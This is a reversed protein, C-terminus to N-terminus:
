RKALRALQRRLRAEVSEPLRKVPLKVIENATEDPVEHLDYHKGGKGDGVGYTGHRGCDGYGGSEGNWQGSTFFPDPKKM